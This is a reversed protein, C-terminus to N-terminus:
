NRKARRWQDCISAVEDHYPSAMWVARWEDEDLLRALEHWERRIREARQRAHKDLFDVVKEHGTRAPGELLPGCTPYYQPPALAFNVMLPNGRLKDTGGAGTSITIGIPPRFTFASDPGSRPAILERLVGPELPDLQADIVTLFTEKDIIEEDASGM